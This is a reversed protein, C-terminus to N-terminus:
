IHWTYTHIDLSDSLWDQRTDSNELVFNQIILKERFIFCFQFTLLDFVKEVKFKKKSAVVCHWKNKIFIFHQTIPKKLNTM